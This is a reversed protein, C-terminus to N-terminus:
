KATEKHGPFPPTATLLGHQRGGVSVPNAQAREGLREDPARRRLLHAELAELRGPAPARRSSRRQARLSATTHWSSLRVAQGWREHPVGIVSTAALDPNAPLLGLEVELLYVSLGGSQITDRRATASSSTTTACCAWAAPTCGATASCRTTSRPGSTTARSCMPAASSSRATRSRSVTTSSASTTTGSPPVRPHKGLGAGRRLGRHHVRASGGGLWWNVTGFFAGAKASAHCLELYEVCNRGLMATHDGKTVGLATLMNAAHNVRLNSEAYTYTRGEDILETRNPCLSAARRVVSGM